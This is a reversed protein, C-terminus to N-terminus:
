TPENALGGLAYRGYLAGEHELLWLLRAPLPEDARPGATMAPEGGGGALKAAITVFLEDVLGDRLLSGFLTPGGECLLTRVGRERLSGLVVPLTLVDPDLEVVEVAAAAGALSLPAGSFVLVRAEPSAFLPIDVPVRGSRTVVVALPEADQGRERRRARREARALIRGYREAQLTGTGAMVADARERLEMFLLRDTADSLPRSHGDFAARGDLSTVFNALTFPRDAPLELSGFMSDLLSAGEQKGPAPLLRRLVSSADAV